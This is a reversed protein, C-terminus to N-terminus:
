PITEETIGNLLEAAVKRREADTLYAVFFAGGFSDTRWQCGAFVSVELRTYGDKKRRTGIWFAPTYVGGERILERATM